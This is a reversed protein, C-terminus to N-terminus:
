LRSIIKEKWSAGFTLWALAGVILVWSFCMAAFPGWNSPDKLASMLPFILLLILGTSISFFQIIKNARVEKNDDDDHTTKLQERLESVDIDFAAALSKLSDLGARHTREIRQITRVNLGSAQALDEQSWHKNIRMSKLAM